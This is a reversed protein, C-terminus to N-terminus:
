FEHYHITSEPMSEELLDNGELNQQMFNHRSKKIQAEKKFKKKFNGTTIQDKISPLKTGTENSENTKASREVYQPTRVKKPNIKAVQHIVSSDSDEGNTKSQQTSSFKNRHRSANSAERIRDQHQKITM